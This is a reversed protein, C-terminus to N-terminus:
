KSTKASKSSVYYVSYLWAITVGLTIAIILLPNFPFSPM